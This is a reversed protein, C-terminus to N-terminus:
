SKMVLTGAIIDHLGQKRETFAVMLFGICLILGSLIKAFFRGTAHEFSIRNGELDTVKLNLIRKGVTAQWPSSTLLAEYLWNIALGVLSLTLVYNLFPALQAPNNPAIDRTQQFLRFSLVMVLPSYLIGLILRDVFYALVRIWFGGYPQSVIVIPAAMGGPPVTAAPSLSAGCRQCFVSDALITEGCHSCFITKQAMIM